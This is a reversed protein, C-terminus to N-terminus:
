KVIKGKNKTLYKVILLKDLSDIKEFAGVYTNCYKHLLGRAEGTDHNHDLSPTKTFPEGCLACCNNQKIIMSGYQNSTIGYKCKRAYGLQRERFEPQCRYRQRRRENVRQKLGPHTKRYNRYYAAWCTKCWLMSGRQRGLTWNRGLVLETSCKSCNTM